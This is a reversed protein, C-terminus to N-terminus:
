NNTKESLSNVLQGFASRNDEVASLSGSMKVFITASDNEIVAALITQDSPRFESLNVWQLELGNPNISKKQTKLFTSIEAASINSIGIQGLWRQVNAVLGGAMGSLSIISCEIPDATNQSTFTVLRFGSGSKENWSEPTTWSLAIDAKSAELGQMNQMSGMGPMGSMGPMSSPSVNPHVFEPTEIKETYHRVVPKNGCGSVLLITFLLLFSIHKNKM